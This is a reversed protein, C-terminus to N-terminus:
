WVGFERGGVVFGVWSLFNWICRELGSGGCLDLICLAWVWLRGRLIGLIRELLCGLGFGSASDGREGLGYFILCVM